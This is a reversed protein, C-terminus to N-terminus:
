PGGNTFSSLAANVPLVQLGASKAVRLLRDLDDPRCGWRSPRDQVDHTYVVIWAKRAAAQEVYEHVEDFSRKGVELGVAKLQGLDVRGANVGADVGRISTFRDVLFRKTTVTADGYPYAFSRLRVDGVQKRVWTENDHISRDLDETRVRLCSVHRFTQCGLEHGEAHIAPLDSAEFMPEGEWVTACLGGCVYYTGHVGHDRLM